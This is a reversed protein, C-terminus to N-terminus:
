SDYIHESDLFQLRIPLILWTSVTQVFAQRSANINMLSAHSTVVYRCQLRLGDGAPWSSLGDSLSLSVPLCLGGGRINM